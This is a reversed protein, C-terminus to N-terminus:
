YIKGDGRTFKASNAYVIKYKKDSSLYKRHIQDGDSRQELVRCGVGSFFHFDAAPHTGVPLALLKAENGQIVTSIEGRNLHNIGIGHLIERGNGLYVHASRQDDLAGQQEGGIGLLGKFNLGAGDGHLTVGAAVIGHLFLAVAYLEQPGHGMQPGPRVQELRYETDAAQSGIGDM